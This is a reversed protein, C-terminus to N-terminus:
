VGPPSDWGRLGNGALLRGAPRTMHAMCHMRVRGGVIGVHMRREM